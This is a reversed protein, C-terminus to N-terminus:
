FPWNALQTLNTLSHLDCHDSSWMLCRCRRPPIKPQDQGTCQTGMSPPGLGQLRRNPLLTKSFKSLIAGNALNVILFTFFSFFSFHFPKLNGTSLNYLLSVMYYFLSCFPFSNSFSYLGCQLYICTNASWTCINVMMAIQLLM